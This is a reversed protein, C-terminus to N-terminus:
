NLLPNLQLTSQKSEAFIEEYLEFLGKLYASLTYKRAIIKGKDSLIQLDTEGKLITKILEVFEAPKRANFFLANNQSVERLVPIDSLLVPLGVAMAEVAAIGFGEFDSCMVYADYEPLLEHINHCAGKLNISLCSDNIQEQLITHLHGQGYIDISVNLGKLSSFADILYQYNKQERLNGVAVLKLSKRPSIYLKNTEFYVDNIFNYLLKSRGKIGIEKEFDILVESTAGIITESKRYTIKDLLKALYSYWKVTYAGSSMTVALNSVHPTSNGCALRAVMVSWYLVSNVLQVDHSAIINKLQSTVRLIDRKGKMNLCYYHDYEVDTDSFQNIPYLTVLVVNYRKRVEPIQSVVLMEAGGLGLSEIIYLITKKM